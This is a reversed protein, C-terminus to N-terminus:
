KNKQLVCISMVMNEYSREGNGKLAQVTSISSVKGGWQDMTLAM